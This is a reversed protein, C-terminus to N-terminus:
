RLIEFTSNITMGKYLETKYLEKNAENTQATCSTLSHRGCNQIM